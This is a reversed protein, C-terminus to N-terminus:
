PLAWSSLYTAPTPGRQHIQMETGRRGYAAMGRTLRHAGEPSTIELEGELVYFIQDQGLHHSGVFAGRQLTRKRLEVSLGQALDTYRFSTSAGAGGHPPTEAQGIDAANVRIAERQVVAAPVPEILMYSVHNRAAPMIRVLSNQYAYVAVGPRLAHTQGNIIISGEGELVYYGMDWPIAHETIEAGAHLTRRRFNVARDAALDSYRYGTSTGVGGHPVEPRGVADDNMIVPARPGSATEQVGAPAPRWAMIVSFPEAGIQKVRVVAGKFVYAAMGATLRRTVGDSTIEGEGSVVYYIQDHGIEHDGWESNPHFTRRRLAVAANEVNDTYRYATTMGIAGHPSEQQALNRENVVVFPEASAAGAFSAAAIAVALCLRRPVAGISLTNGSM